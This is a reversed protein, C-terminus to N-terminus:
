SFMRSTDLKGDLESVWSRLQACVRKFGIDEPSSFKAINRHNEPIGGTRENAIGLKASNAPVVITSFFFLKRTEKEEWFSYMPFNHKLATQNFDSGVRDLTESDRKL